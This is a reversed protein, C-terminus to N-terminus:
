HLVFGDNKQLLGIGVWPLGMLSKGMQVKVEKFDLAVM